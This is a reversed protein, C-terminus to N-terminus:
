MTWGRAYLADIWVIGSLVTSAICHHMILMGSSFCKPSPFGHPLFHWPKSINLEKVYTKKHLLDQKPHYSLGYIFIKFNARPMIPKQQIIAFNTYTKYFIFHLYSLMWVHLRSANLKFELVDTCCLNHYFQVSIELETWRQHSFLIIEVLNHKKHLNNAPNRTPSVPVRGKTTVSMNPTSFGPPFVFNSHEKM